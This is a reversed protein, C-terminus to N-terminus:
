DDNDADITLPVKCGPCPPWPTSGATDFRARVLGFLQAKLAANTPATAVQALSSVTLAM